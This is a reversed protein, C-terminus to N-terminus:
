AFLEIEGDPVCFRAEDKEINFSVLVIVVGAACNSVMLPPFSAIDRSKALARPRGESAPATTPSIEMPAAM